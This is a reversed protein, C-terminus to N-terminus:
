ASSALRAIDTRLDAVPTGPMWVVSLGSRNFGIIQAGHGIDYGSTLDTRGTLAVGMHDAAKEIVPEPATLGVITPDFRDLYHRITEPDDRQPDVTIWVVQTRQRVGPDVRRLAAVLDALQASCVDPCSTYGYFVLTVQRTAGSAFTWLHGSTDTFTADPLPYGPDIVTGAYGDDAGLPVVIGAPGEDSGGCGGLVLALALGSCATLRRVPVSVLARVIREVPPAGLFNGAHVLDCGAAYV